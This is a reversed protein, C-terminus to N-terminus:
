CNDSYSINQIPLDEGYEYLRRIHNTSTYTITSYAKSLEIISTERIVLIKPLELTNAIQTAIELTTVGDSIAGYLSVCLSDRNWISEDSIYDGAFFNGVSFGVDGEVHLSDVYQTIADSITDTNVVKEDINAPLAIIANEIKDTVPMGKSEYLPTGIVVAINESYVEFLRMEPALHKGIGRFEKVSLIKTKKM